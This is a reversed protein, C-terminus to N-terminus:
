ICWPILSMTPYGVREEQLYGVGGQSLGGGRSVGGWHVGGEWEEAVSMQHYDM